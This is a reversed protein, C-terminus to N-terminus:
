KLIKDSGQSTIKALAEPWITKGNRSMCYICAGSDITSIQTLGISMAEAMTFDFFTCYPKLDEEGVSSIFNLMGCDKTCVKMEYDDEEKGDIVETPWGNATASKGVRKLYLRLLRSLYIKGAIKRIFSPIKEAQKQTMAMDFAVYEEVGIGEDKMGKKLTMMRSGVVILSDYMPTEFYPMKQIIDPYYKRSKEIISDAKKEGYRQLLPKRMKQLYADLSKELKKSKDLYYGHKMKGESEIV